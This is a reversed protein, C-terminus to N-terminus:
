RKKTNKNIEVINKLMYGKYVLNNSSVLGIFICLALLLFGAISPIISEDIVGIIISPIFIIFGYISWLIYYWKATRFFLEYTQKENLVENRKKKEKRSEEIYEVEENKEEKKTIEVDDWELKENCNYCKPDGYTVEWDCNPCYYKEEEEM